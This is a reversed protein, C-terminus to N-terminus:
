DEPEPPHCLRELASCIADINELSVDPEAEASLM